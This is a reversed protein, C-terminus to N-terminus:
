VRPGGGRPRAPPTSAAGCRPFRLALRTVRGALWRLPRRAPSGLVYCLGVTPLVLLVASLVGGAAGLVDLDGAAAVVQHTERVLSRADARVLEPLHWAAYGLNAGLLPLTVLVWGTVMARVRPRLSAVAPPVERRPLMGALIPRVKGFLDPV